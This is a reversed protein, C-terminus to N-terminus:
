AFARLWDLVRAADAPPCTAGVGPDILISDRGLGVDDLYRRLRYVSERTGRVTRLVAKGLGPSNVLDPYTFVIGPHCLLRVLIRAESPRHTCLVERAVVELGRRELPTITASM